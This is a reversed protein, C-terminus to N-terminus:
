WLNASFMMLVVLFVEGLRKGPRRDCRWWRRYKQSSSSLQFIFNRQSNIAIPSM